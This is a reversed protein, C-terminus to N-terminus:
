EYHIKEDLGGEEDLGGRDLILRLDVGDRWMGVEMAGNSHRFLAGCGGSSSKGQM